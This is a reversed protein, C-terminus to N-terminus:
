EIVWWDDLADSVAAPLPQQLLWNVTSAVVIGEQQAQTYNGFPKELLLDLTTSMQVTVRQDHYTKM